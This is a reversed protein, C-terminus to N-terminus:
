WEVDSNDMSDDRGGRARHQICNRIELQSVRRPELLDDQDSDYGQNRYERTGLFATNIAANQDLSGRAGSRRQVPQDVDMRFLNSAATVMSASASSSVMSRTPNGIGAVESPDALSHFQDSTLTAESYSNLDAFTDLDTDCGNADYYTTNGTADENDSRMYEGREGEGRIQAEEPGIHDGDGSGAIGSAGITGFIQDFHSRHQHSPTGNLLNHGSGPVPTLSDSDLTNSRQHHLLDNRNDASIDDEFSTQVEKECMKILSDDSTDVCVDRVPIGLPSVSRIFTRTGESASSVRPSMTSMSEIRRRSRPPLPPTPLPRKQIYNDRDGDYEVYITGDSALLHERGISRSTGYGTRNIMSYLPEDHTVNRSGLPPPRPPACYKTTLRYGLSKEVASSPSCQQQQQQQQQSQNEGARKRVYIETLSRCRGTKWSFPKWYLADTALDAKDLTPNFYDTELKRRGFCPSRASSALSRTSALRGRSRPPPLPPLTDQSSMNFNKAPYRDCIRRTLTTASRRVPARPQQQQHHHHRTPQPHHQPQYHVSMSSPHARGPRPPKFLYPIHSPSLNPSSQSIMLDDLRRLNREQWDQIVKRYFIHPPIRDHSQARSIYSESDRFARDLDELEIEDMTSAVSVASSSVIKPPPPRPPAPGKKRSPRFNKVMINPESQFSSGLDSRRPPRLPSSIPTFLMDVRDTTQQIDDYYSSSCTPDDPSRKQLVANKPRYRSLEPDSFFESESYSRKYKDNSNKKKSRNGDDYSSEDSTLMDKVRNKIKSVSPLSKIAKSKLFMLKEKTDKLKNRVKWSQRQSAGSEDGENETTVNIQGDDDKGIKKSDSEGNTVSKEVDGGESDNSNISFVNVVTQQSSSTAFTRITGEEGEGEGHGDKDIATPDSTAPEPATPTATTTPSSARRNLHRDTNRTIEDSLNEFKALATKLEESAASAPISKRSDRSSSQRSEGGGGGAGDNITQDGGGRNIKMGHSRGEKEMEEELKKRIDELKIREEEIKRVADEEMKKRTKEDEKRKTEEERKKGQAEKKRREEEEKARKKEEEKRKREEEKRKKEEERAKREEEERLRKEEEKKRKEEEKRQKEEEEEIARQRKDEEKRKKEEEKRRKDEEERQRKEEEKKQREEEKRKREEEERQKKEEEKARKKEEKLRKEEEKRKRELEEKEAQMQLAKAKKELEEEKRRREAEKEEEKRKKEEELKEMARRRKEEETDIYEPVISGSKKDDLQKPHQHFVDKVKEGFLKMKNKLKNTTLKLSSITSRDDHLDGFDAGNYSGDDRLTAESLAVSSDDLQDETITITPIDVSSSPDIDTSEQSQFSSQQAGEAAMPARVKFIGEGRPHEPDDDGANDANLKLAENHPWPKYKKVEQKVSDMLQDSTNSAFQELQKDPPKEVQPRSAPSPSRGLGIKSLFKKRKSISEGPPPDNENSESSRKEKKAKKTKRKELITFITSSSSAAPQDSQPRLINSEMTSDINEKNGDDGDDCLIMEEEEKEILDKDVLIEKPEELCSVRFKELDVDDVCGDNAAGFEDNTGLSSSISDLQRLGSRLSDSKRKNNSNNNNNNNNGSAGSYGRLENDDDYDFSYETTQEVDVEGPKVTVTLGDNGREQNNDDPSREM